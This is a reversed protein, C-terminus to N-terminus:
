TRRKMTGKGLSLEWVGRIRDVVVSLRQPDNSYVDQFDVKINNDIYNLHKWNLCENMRHNENDVQLYRTCTEPITAKFNKGCELMGSRAIIITKAQLRNSLIIEPLLKCTYSDKNIHDLIYKTKTKVKETNGTKEKCCQTLKQKNMNFAAANM